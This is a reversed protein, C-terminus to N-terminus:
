TISKYAHKRHPKPHVPRPKSTNPRFRVLNRAIEALADFLGPMDPVAEIL